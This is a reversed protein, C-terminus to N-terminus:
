LSIVKDANAQLEIIDIMTGHMGAELKDMLNYHNLCTKCAIVKVGKKEITQFIEIAPSGTCVLKVGGNYLTIFRPLRNQENLLKLYNSALLVGLEESGNGMGYQTFQLLTATM